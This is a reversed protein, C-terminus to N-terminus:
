ASTGGCHGRVGKGKPKEVAEPLADARNSAGESTFRQCLVRMVVGTEVKPKLPSRPWFRKSVEDHNGSKVTEDLQSPWTHLPLVGERGVRYRSPYSLPHILVSVVFVDQDM